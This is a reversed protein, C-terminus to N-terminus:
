AKEADERAEDIELNYPTPLISQQLGHMSAASALFDSPALM